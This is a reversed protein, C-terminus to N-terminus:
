CLYLCGTCHTCLEGTLYATGEERAIESGGNSAALGFTFFRSPEPVEDDLSTINVVGERVTMPFSLYGSIPTLESSAADMGIAAVQSHAALCVPSNECLFSLKCCRCSSVHM